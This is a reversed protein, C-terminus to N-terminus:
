RRNEKSRRKIRAYATPNKAIWEGVQRITSRVVAQTAKKGHINQYSIILSGCHNELANGFNRATGRDIDMSYQLSVDTVCKLMAVSSDQANACSIVGFSALVGVIAKIM